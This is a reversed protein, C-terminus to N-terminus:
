VLTGAHIHFTKGERLRGLGMDECCTIFVQGSTIRGLVFAQGGAPGARFARRGAAAGAM